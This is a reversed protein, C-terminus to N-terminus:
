PIFAVVDINIVLDGPVPIYPGAADGGASPSLVFQLPVSWGFGVVNDGNATVPTTGSLGPAFDAWLIQVQTWDATLPINTKTPPTCTDKTGPCTGGGAPNTATPLSTNEMSVSFSFVNLPGSGRVWFSVGKYASLNACGMWLGGGMGWVQAQTSTESVAWQSPPHGALIALTPPTATDNEPYAFPGTYETGTNPTAGGFPTGFNDATVTGTYTEFNILVPNLPAIKTACLKQVPAGGTGTAGGTSGGTTGGTGTTPGTTGGIGGGTHGGIGSARAGGTGTKAPVATPSSCAAGAGVTALLLMLVSKPLLDLRLTNMDLESRRPIFLPVQTV